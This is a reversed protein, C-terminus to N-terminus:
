IDDKGQCHRPFRSCARLLSGVKGCLDTLNVLRVDGQLRPDFDKLYVSVAEGVPPVVFM